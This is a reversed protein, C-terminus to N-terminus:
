RLDPVRRRHVHTLAVAAADAADTAPQTELRLLRVIMFVVQQKEARGHGVVSTKVEAPTYSAVTLGRRGLAALLVGRSEALALASRPNRASFTSEVAAEEPAHRELVVSFRTDLDALREARSAGRPRVVGAEILRVKSGISEVVAWGTAASGPDVGM